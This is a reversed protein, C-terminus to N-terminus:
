FAAKQIWRLRQPSLPVKVVALRGSPRGFRHWEGRVSPRPGLTRQALSNTRRYAHWACQAASRTQAVIRAAPQPVPKDILPVDSSTLERAVIEFLPVVLYRACVVSVAFAAGPRLQAALILIERVVYADDRYKTSTEAAMFRPRDRRKGPVVDYVHNCSFGLWWHGEGARHESAHQLPAQGVIVHCIRRVERILSRQPSPGDQCVRNPWVETSM